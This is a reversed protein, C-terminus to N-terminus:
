VTWIQKLVRRFNGGLIAEIDADSYKRRILGEALDFPRKAYNYGDIDIKDRFGYSNKYGAKLQKYEDPPMADYGLLDIDSGVGVHEVGVLKAAYDYHDLMSEITTPEKITIFMRVETIGMVGGKAAMAKIAEDTKCRPHTPNLARCNSHTILVPKKSVDFADLTTRDGCHSVDVAMGLKNMREVIALGFDSLGEDRRETSGNGILTRANYTLQSVRQGLGYFYDVDDLKHFHESNQVGLMVGVKGSSKIGDLRAPTEVREFWNDHRALFTNYGSLFRLTELYADTGGTGIAIHFVNIGSQKFPAFDDATFNEPNGLMKMMRSPSIWLPALMDIVTARQVLDIARSSYTQDAGGFLRHKDRNFFPARNLMAAGTGGRSLVPALLVAAAGVASKGLFHRRNMESDGEAIHQQSRFRKHASITDGEVNTEDKM